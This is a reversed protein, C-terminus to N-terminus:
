GNKIYAEAISCGNNFSIQVLKNAELRSVEYYIMCYSVRDYFCSDIENQLKLIRKREEPDKHPIPEFIM